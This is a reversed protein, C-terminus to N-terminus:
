VPAALGFGSPKRQRFPMAQELQRCVALLEGDADIRGVLQVGFPLSEESTVGAPISAAPQGTVNFLATFAGIESIAEFLAEPGLHRYAGVQPPLVPVSPTLVMDADGFFDSVRRSLVQQQRKVQDLDLRRGAARLWQTVPQLLKESISPVSALQMQWLPLFEHLEGKVTPAPEVHHGLSELMRATAEVAAAIPAAVQGFPPDVCKLIRMARPARRCRALLSSEAVFADPNGALVDLMAAADEVTQALPGMVSLGLENVPGHLNGLLMRSPKLGFLHCFASPIRVSGGGDSGHAIPILGAAVAAGSGGSSGGPTHKTNWPNRSPPHIDPETIPLAGFESTALKGLVVFGARKMRKAAPADFPSIFYRFARSGLRTPTGLVPVLDKIGLPVGHFVRIPKGQSRQRLQRDLQRARRLAGRAQVSVFAQLEPNFRAIRDLYFRTLEEAGLARQRVATAQELASLALPDTM